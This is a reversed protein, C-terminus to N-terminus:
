ITPTSHHQQHSQPKNPAPLIIFKLGKTYILLSSVGQCTIAGQTTIYGDQAITATQSFENSSATNYM